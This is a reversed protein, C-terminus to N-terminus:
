DELLISLHKEVDLKVEAETATYVDEYVGCSCEVIYYMGQYKFIQTDGDGAQIKFSVPSKFIVDFYLNKVKLYEKLWVEASKADPACEDKSYIKQM